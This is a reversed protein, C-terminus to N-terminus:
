WRRFCGFWPHRGGPADLVRRGSRGHREGNWLEEGDPGTITLFPMPAIYVGRNNVAAYATTMDLLTQEYAGLALPWYRGLEGQLGLAQATEIVSDAGIRAM